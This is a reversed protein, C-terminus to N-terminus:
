ITFWDITGEEVTGVALSFNDGLKKNKM